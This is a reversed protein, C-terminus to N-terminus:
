EQPLQTKASDSLFFTVYPSGLSKSADWSILRTFLTPQIFNSAHKKKENQCSCKLSSYKMTLECYLQTTPYTPVSAEVTLAM